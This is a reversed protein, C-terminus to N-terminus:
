IWKKTANNLKPDAFPDQLALRSVGLLEHMCNVETVRLAACRKLQDAVSM